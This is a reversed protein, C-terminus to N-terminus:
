FSIEKCLSVSSPILQTRSMMIHKWPHNSRCAHSAKNPGNIPIETTKSNHLSTMWIAALYKLLKDALHARLPGHNVKFIGLILLSHTQSTVLQCWPLSHMWASVSRSKAVPFNPFADWICTAASTMFAHEVCSFSTLQKPSRQNSIPKYISKKHMENCIYM